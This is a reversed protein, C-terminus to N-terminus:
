YIITHYYEKFVQLNRETRQTGDWHDLLFGDTVTMTILRTSNLPYHTAISPAAEKELFKNGTQTMACLFLFQDPFFFSNFCLLATACLSSSIIHACIYLLVLKRQSQWECSAFWPSTFHMNWAILLRSPKCRKHHIGVKRGIVCLFGSIIHYIIYIIYM